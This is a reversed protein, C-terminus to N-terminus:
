PYKESLLAFELSFSSWRKQCYLTLMLTLRKRKIIPFSSSITKDYCVVDAEFVDRLSSKSTKDSAKKNSLTSFEVTFHKCINEQTIVDQRKAYRCSVENKFVCLQTVWDTTLNNVSIYLSDIVAQAVIENLWKNPKIWYSM